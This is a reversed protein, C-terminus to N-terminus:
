FPTKSRRKGDKTEKKPQIAERQYVPLTNVDLLKLSALISVQGFKALSYADIQDDNKFSVNQLEKFFLRRVGEGMLNKSGAKGSGTIFKKLKLPAVYNPFPMGAKFLRDLFVGKLQYLRGEGDYAGFAPAEVYMYKCNYQQIINMVYDVIMQFRLQDDWADASNPKTEISTVLLVKSPLFPLVAIGTSTISFDLGIINKKILMM